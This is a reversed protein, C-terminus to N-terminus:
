KFFYEPKVIKNVLMEFESKQTKTEDEKLKVSDNLLRQKEHLNNIKQNLLKVEEEIESSEQKVKGYFEEFEVQQEEIEPLKEYYVKLLSAVIEKSTKEPLGKYQLKYCTIINTKDHVFVWNEATNVKYKSDLIDIILDASNFLELIENEAKPILEEHTRKWTKFTDDNIIYEAYMRQCYRMVAHQTVNM